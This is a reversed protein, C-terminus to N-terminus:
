DGFLIMQVRCSGLVKSLLYANGLGVLNWAALRAGQYRTHAIMIVKPTIQTDDLLRDKGQSQSSWKNVAFGLAPQRPFYYPRSSSHLQATIM